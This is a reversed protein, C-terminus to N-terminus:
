DPYQPVKLFDILLEVAPRTPTTPRFSLADLYVANVRQVSKSFASKGYLFFEAYFEVHFAWITFSSYTVPVFHPSKKLCFFFSVLRLLVHSLLDLSLLMSRKYLPLQPRRKDVKFLLERCM